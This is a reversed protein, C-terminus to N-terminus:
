LQGGYSIMGMGGGKGYGAQIGLGEVGFLNDVKAGFGYNNPGGYTGGINFNRTPNAEVSISPDFSGQSGQLNLSAGVRPDIGRVSYGLGTVDFNQGEISINPDFSPNFGWGVGGPNSSAYGSGWGGEYNVSPPSNSFTFAPTDDMYFSIRNSRESGGFANAGLGQPGSSDKGGGMGMPM